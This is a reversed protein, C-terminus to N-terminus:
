TGNRNATCTARALEGTKPDHAAMSFTFEDAYFQELVSGSVTNAFAVRYKPAATGSGLKTAFAQVCADLSARGPAAMAAGSALLAPALAAVTVIGIHQIKM